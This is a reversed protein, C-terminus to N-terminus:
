SFKWGFEVEGGYTSPGDKQLRVTIDDTVDYDINVKTDEIQAFNTDIKGHLNDSADIEFIGRMGGRGFKNTFEPLFRVYKFSKLIVDFITKLRTKSIAPGFVVEQLKQTLFAPVMLSLSQDEVGLLLLSIIQEENLYPSSKFKIHPDLATGWAKMTVLYKKLKGSATLEIVPDFPQEPVFLIKGETIDLPKYPFELHGDIFKIAGSLKPKQLTGQIMLDIMTRASMFSTKIALGDFVMVNIDLDIPMQETKQSAATMQGTMEHFQASLINEHIQSKHLFLKGEVSLPNELNQKSVYLRGSVLGYIGKVFSMMIKDFIIPMHIFNCQMANDFWLTARACQMTGEHLDIVLDKFVLNKEAVNLEYSMSMNQIVNYVYPLRIHAYHTQINGYLIGSKIYSRATFSGDQAFSKKLIEPVFKHILSFDMSATLYLDNEYDSAMDFILKNKEYVQFTELKIEPVLTSSVQWRFDSSSGVIKLTGEQFKYTGEVNVRDKLAQHTFALKYSGSIVDQSYACLDFIFDKKEIIWGFQSVIDIVMNNQIHLTKKDGDVRFDVELLDKEKLKCIALFGKDDHEKIVLNGGPIISKNKYFLKDLSVSIQITSLIDYLDFRFQASVNGTVNSLLQPLNFYKLCASEIQATMDCWCHRDDFKISLPDIFISGDETKITLGGQGNRIVGTIYSPLIIENKRIDYTLSIDANMLNTSNEFPIYFLSSGSIKEIAAGQHYWILGDKFYLQIKTATDDSQLQCTYPIQAYLDDMSRKLYLMGDKILISEYLIWTSEIKSFTKAFFDPLKKPSKEFLEMMIVHDFHLTVKLARHTLLSFYSGKVILKEAIISWDSDQKVSNSLSNKIIDIDQLSGSVGEELIPTISIGSLKVTCTLVDIDDVHCALKLGFDEQFQQCIREQVYLKFKDTSSLYMLAILCGLLLGLLVHVFIKFYSNNFINM